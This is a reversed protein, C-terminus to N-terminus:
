SRTEESTCTRNRDAGNTREIAHRGVPVNRGTTEICAEGASTWANRCASECAPSQWLKAAKPVCSAWADLTVLPRTGLQTGMGGPQSIGSQILVIKPFRLARSAKAEVLAGSFLM